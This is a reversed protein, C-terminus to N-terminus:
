FIKASVAMSLIITMGIAVMVGFPILTTHGQTKAPMPECRHHDEIALHQGIVIMRYGILKLRDLTKMFCSQTMMLYIAYIGTIISSALFVFFTLQVGLIAGIAMMLKVDGGGMGGVVFFPALSLFGIGIGGLSTGAGHGYPSATHWALGTIMASYTLRNPIQFKRYDFIAASFAILLALTIQVITGIALQSAHM